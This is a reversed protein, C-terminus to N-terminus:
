LFFVLSLPDQTWSTLSSNWHVRLCLSAGCSFNCRLEASMFWLSLCDTSLCPETENEGTIASSSVLVVSVVEGSRKLTVRRQVRCPRLWGTDYTHFRKFQDSFFTDCLCVRGREQRKRETAGRLTEELLGNHQGLLFGGSVERHSQKQKSKRISNKLPGQWWIHFLFQERIERSALHPHPHLPQKAQWSTTVRARRTVTGFQVAREKEAALVTTRCFPVRHIAAVRSWCLMHQPQLDSINLGFRRFYVGRMDPQEIMPAICQPVAVTHTGIHM